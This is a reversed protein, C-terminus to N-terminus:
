SATGSPLRSLAGAAASLPRGGWAILRGTRLQAVLDAVMARGPGMKRDTSRADVDSIDVAELLKPDGFKDVAARLPIADGPPLDLDHRVV